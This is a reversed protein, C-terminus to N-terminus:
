ECATASLGVIAECAETPACYVFAGCAQSKCAQATIGVLIEREVESTNGCVDTATYTIIREGVTEYEISEGIPMSEQYVVRVDGSDSWVNNQGEFLAIEQNTLFYTRPEKLEYCIALPNEAIYTRYEALSMSGQEKWRIIGNAFFAICGEPSSNGVNNAKILRNSILKASTDKIPEIGLESTTSYWFYGSSDESKNMVTDILEYARDVVLKGTVKDLIGGYVTRGLQTTYDTGQYPEYDTPVSGLELQPNTITIVSDTASRTSFSIYFYGDDDGIYNSPTLPRKIVQPHDTSNYKSLVKFNKDIYGWTTGYANGTTDSAVNVYYNERGKIPILIARTTWTSPLSFTFTGDGNDTFQETSIIPTVVSGVNPNYGIGSYLTLNLLNKGTAYVDVESHGYIPCINEYPQWETLTEGKTLSIFKNTVNYTQGSVIEWYFNKIFFPENVTFTGAYQNRLWTGDAKYLSATGNSTRYTGAPLIIADASAILNTQFNGSATATGSWSYTYGDTTVTLGFQNGSPFKINPDLINVGAGGTWPKDYGNFSQVPEINVLVSKANQEFETEFSAIAGEAVADALGSYTYEIENGNGDIATVGETPDFEVNPSIKVTDLGEIRPPDIQEITVTRDKRLAVRNCLLDGALGRQKSCFWPAFKKGEAMARYIVTHEGVDCMDISDPTVTYEIENGNGDYAYIGETLDIGIGQNITVDEIGVFRPVGCGKDSLFPKLKNGCIKPKLHRCDSM